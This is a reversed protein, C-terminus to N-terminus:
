GNKPLERPPMWRAHRLAGKACALHGSFDVLSKGSLCWTMRPEWQWDKFHWRSIHRGCLSKHRVIVKALKITGGCYVCISGHDLGYLRGVVRRVDEPSAVAGCEDCPSELTVQTTGPDISPYDDPLPPREWRAHPMEAKACSTHAKIDVEGFEGIAYWQLHEEWEPHQVAWADPEKPAAHVHELPGGVLRIGTGCFSCTGGLRNWDVVHRAIESHTPVSGCGCEQPVLIRAGQVIFVTM